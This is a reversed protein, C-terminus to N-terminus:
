PADVHPVADQGRGRPTRRIARASGAAGGGAGREASQASVPEARRSERYGIGRCHQAPPFPRWGLQRGGGPLEYPERHTRGHVPPARTRGSRGGGVGMRVSRGAERGSLARGTPTLAAVALGTPAALRRCITGGRTDARRPIGRLNASTPMRGSRATRCCTTTAVAARPSSGSPKPRCSSVSITIRRWCHPCLPRLSPEKTTGNM